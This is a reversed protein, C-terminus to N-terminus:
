TIDLTKFKGLECFTVLFLVLGPTTERDNDTEDATSPDSSAAVAAVAALQCIDGRQSVRM